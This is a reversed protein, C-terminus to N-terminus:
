FSKKKIFRGEFRKALKECFTKDWGLNNTAFNIKDVSIKGGYKFYDYTNDSFHRKIALYTQYVDIARM